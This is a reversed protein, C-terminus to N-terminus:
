PFQANPSEQSLEVAPIWISELNDDPRAKEETGITYDERQRSPNTNVTMYKPTKTKKKKRRFAYPAM